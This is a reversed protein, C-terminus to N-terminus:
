VMFGMDTCGWPVFLMGILNRGSEKVAIRSHGIYPIAIVSLLSEINKPKLIAPLKARTLRETM